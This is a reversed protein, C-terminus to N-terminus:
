EIDGLIIEGSPNVTIDIHQIPNTTLNDLRIVGYTTGASIPRFLIPTTTSVNFQLGSALTFTKTYNTSFPQSNCSGSIAYSTASTKTFSWNDLVLDDATGCIADAGKCKSCDKDGSLARNQADRLNNRIEFATQTLAQKQNFKNYSVIGFGTLTLIIVVVVILEVLTFGNQVKFKNNM